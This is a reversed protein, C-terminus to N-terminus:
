KKWEEIEVGNDRFWQQIPWRESCNNTPTEYVLFAFDIDKLQEGMKITDALLELHAIFDKFNIQNLQRRYVQLFQCNDPHKPVCKGKCLGECAAGPKLPPCDLWIAGCKDRGLQLWKPNWIATSLGVLNPPFNRLQAFYSTYFKM